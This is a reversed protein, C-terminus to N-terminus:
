PSFTKDPYGIMVDAALAKEIWEAAWYNASIDSYTYKTKGAPLSLGEAMLIALESRLIPLKANFEGKAGREMKALMAGAWSKVFVNEKGNIAVLCPSKKVNGAVVYNADATTRVQTQSGFLAPHAYNQVQQGAQCTLSLSAALCLAGVSALLCSKKM